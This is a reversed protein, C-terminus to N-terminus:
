GLLIGTVTLLIPVAGVVPGMVSTIWIGTPVVKPVNGVFLLPHFQVVLPFVAVQILAQGIVFPALLVKPTGNM